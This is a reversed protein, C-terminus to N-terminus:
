EAQGDKHLPRFGWVGAAALSVVYVLCDEQARGRELRERIYGGRGPTAALTTKKAHM